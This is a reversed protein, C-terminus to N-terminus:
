IKQISVLKIVQFNEEIENRIMIPIVEENPSKLKLSHGPIENFLNYSSKKLNLCSLLNIRVILNM